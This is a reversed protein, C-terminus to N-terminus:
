EFRGRSGVQFGAEYGAEYGAQSLWAKLHVTKWPFREASPLCQTQPLKPQCFARLRHFSQHSRQHLWGVQRLAECVRIVMVMTMMIMTMIVMLMMVM